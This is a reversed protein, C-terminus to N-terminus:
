GGGLDPRDGIRPPLDGNLELEWGWVHGRGGCPHQWVEQFERVELPGVLARKRFIDDAFQVMPLATLEGLGRDNSRCVERINEIFEAHRPHRRLAEDCSAFDYGFCYGIVARRRGVGHDRLREIDHILSRDKLYPSLLKGVGYDNKKGNNGILSIHKVEIWWEAVETRGDTTLQLDCRARSLGPYRIETALSRLPNFDGPYALLWWDHIARVLELETMTKVGPLFSSRQEGVPLHTDVAKLGEVFRDLIGSLDM